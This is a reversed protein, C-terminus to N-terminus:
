NPFPLKIAVEFESFGSIMNFQPMGVYNHSLDLEESEQEGEFGELQSVVQSNPKIGAKGCSDLYILRNAAEVGLYNHQSYLQFSPLTISKYIM